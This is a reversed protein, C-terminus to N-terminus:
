LIIHIDRLINCLNNFIRVEGELRTLAINFHNDLVDVLDQPGNTYPRGAAFYEKNKYEQILINDIYEKL